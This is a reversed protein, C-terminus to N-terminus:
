AMSNAYSINDYMLGDFANNYVRSHVLFKNDIIYGKVTLGPKYLSFHERNIDSDKISESLILVSGNSAYVRKSLYLSLSKDSINYTNNNCIVSKLDAKIIGEVLTKGIHQKNINTIKDRVINNSQINFISM